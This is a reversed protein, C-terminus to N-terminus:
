CEDRGPEPEWPTGKMNEVQGSTWREEKTGKRKDTRCKIEGEETGIIVEGAEDRIGLWIGSSWRSKMKNKGNSKLFLFWVSEGFEAVEKNFERGKLRRHRTLGDSGIRHKNVVQAAAHRVLWPMAPHDEPVEAGIKAELALKLSQVMSQVIEVGCEADGQSQSDGTPAAEEIVDVQGLGKVKAKLAVLALEQDGKMALRKYGLVKEIYQAM